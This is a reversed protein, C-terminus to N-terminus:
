GRLKMLRSKLDEEDDMDSDDGGLMRDPGMGTDDDMESAEMSEKMLAGSLGEKDMPLKGEMKIVEVEPKKRGLRESLDDESYEMEGQLTEMLEAILDLAKQDM